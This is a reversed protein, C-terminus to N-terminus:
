LGAAAVGGLSWLKGDVVWLRGELSWHTEDGM